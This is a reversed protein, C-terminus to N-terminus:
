STLINSSEDTLFNLSEDVLQFFEEDSQTTKLQIVGAYLDEQMSSFANVPKNQNTIRVKEYDDFSGNNFGFYLDTENEWWGNLVSQDSSSIFTLSFSFRKHDSQINYQNFQGTLSQSQKNNKYFDEIFDRGPYVTVQSDLSYTNLYFGTYAM